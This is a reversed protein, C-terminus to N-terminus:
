DYEQKSTGAVMVCDVNVLGWIVGQVVRCLRNLVAMTEEQDQDM